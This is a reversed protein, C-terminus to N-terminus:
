GMMELFAEIRIKLRETDSESYDTEIQLFPVQHKEEVLERIGYSEINYTHCAQWTLDVVGDVHFEDILRELLEYRGPNPSMCSCPIKLYQEAISRLPDKTEDVTFLRKYGSCNELCVVNAGCEEILKVVKDSGIGVPTGTVLIRSTRETFSSEGRLAKQRIEDIAEEILRLAEEKDSFFGFRFKLTLMEMGSVPSPKKKALDMLNKLTMREKNMLKIAASLREDTIEVKFEDEIREKLKKIQDYWYPLATEEDQNQPLQLLHVPRYEKLLEYMKKKGDCTTDAILLDSFHFFPCTDTAAFGFSSKILPCLNRPLYKEAAAIPENRTGCLPLPIAGAALVLEHPSYLCYLGAVKTGREKAKEIESLNLESLTKLNELIALSM